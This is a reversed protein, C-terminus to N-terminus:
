VQEVTNNIYRQTNELVNDVNSPLAKMGDKLLVDAKM